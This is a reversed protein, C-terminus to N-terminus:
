KPLDKINFQQLLYKEQEEQKNMKRIAGEKKDELRKKTKSMKDGELFLSSVDGIFDNDNNADDQVLRARQKKRWEPDVEIPEYEYNPNFLTDIELFRQLIPNEIAEYILIISKIYKNLARMRDKVFQANKNFFLKKQPLEPLNEAARFELDAKM